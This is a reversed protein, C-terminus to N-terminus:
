HVVAVELVIGVAVDLISHQSARNFGQLTVKGIYM